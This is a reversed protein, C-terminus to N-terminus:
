LSRLFLFLLVVRVKAAMEPNGEFDVFGHWGHKQDAPFMKGLNIKGEPGATAIQLNEFAEVEESTIGVKVHQYPPPANRHDFAIPLDEDHTKSRAFSAM